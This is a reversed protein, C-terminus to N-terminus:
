NTNKILKKILKLEHKSYRSMIDKQLRVRDDQRHLEIVSLIDILGNRQASAYVSEAIGRSVLENDIACLIGILYDNSQTAEQLGSQLNTRDENGRPHCHDRSDYCPM